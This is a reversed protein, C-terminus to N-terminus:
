RSAPNEDVPLRAVILALDARVHEARAEFGAARLWDVQDAASDPVDMEWDVFIPGKEGARPVVLDGLVFTGGPALAAAVRAFLERKADARLHHVALVSVVADFPGEPLADELRGLRLDARPLRERARALMAESADIGVWAADPFRALVRLATEGTGTGLELFRTGAPVAAAVADELEEYGPIEEHMEDLYTEPNWEFDTM